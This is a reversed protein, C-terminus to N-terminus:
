PRPWTTVGENISPVTVVSPLVPANMRRSFTVCAACSAQMARRVPEDAPLGDLDLRDLIGRDLLPRGDVWIPHFLLLMAWSAQM